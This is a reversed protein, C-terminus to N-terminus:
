RLFFRRDRKPISGRHKRWSNAGDVVGYWATIEFGSEYIGRSVSPGGWVVRGFCRVDDPNNPFAVQLHQGEEMPVATELKLGRQGIDSAVAQTMWSDGDESRIVVNESSEFRPERRRDRLPEAVFLRTLKRQTETRM